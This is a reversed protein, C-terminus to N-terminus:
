SPAFQVAALQQWTSQALVALRPRVHESPLEAVTLSTQVALRMHSPVAVNQETGVLAPKDQSSPLGAVTLSLHTFRTHTPEGPTRTLDTVKDAGFDPLFYEYRAVTTTSVDAPTRSVPTDAVTVPPNLLAVAQASDLLLATVLEVEAVAVKEDVVVHVEVDDMGVPARNQTEFMTTGFVAYANSAVEPFFQEGYSSVPLPTEEKGKM